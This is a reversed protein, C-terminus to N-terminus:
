EVCENGFLYLLDSNNYTCDFVFECARRLLFDDSCRGLTKANRSTKFSRLEQSHRMEDVVQLGVAYKLYTQFSHHEPEFLSRGFHFELQNYIKRLRCIAGTVLFYLICTILSFNRIGFPFSFHSLLYFVADM